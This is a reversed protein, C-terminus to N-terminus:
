NDLIKLEVRRNMARGLETSNDGLPMTGGMGQTIVLGPRQGLHNELWQGVAAARSRSLEMQFEPNGVDATHGTIMIDRNPFRSLIEVLSNLRNEEDKLIEYSDPAFHIQNLTLILGDDDETIETDEIGQEELIDQVEEIEQQHDVEEVYEYRSERRGTYQVTQLDAMLFRIDFSEEVFAPRGMESDWYINRASQGSVNNPYFYGFTPSGYQPEVDFQSFTEILHYQQGEKEVKGKYTYLVERPFSISIVDYSRRLDHVEEGVITWQDGPELDEDPVVLLNRLVPYLSPPDLEMLGQPDRFFHFEEQSNLELTEGWSAHTQELILLDAQFEALNDEHSLMEFSAKGTVIGRQLYQDNLYVDEETQTIIKYDDWLDYNYQLTESFLLGPLLFLALIMMLDKM